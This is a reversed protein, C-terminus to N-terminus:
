STFADKCEFSWEFPIDKKILRHLSAAITAFHPVFRRYYSALGVFSRVNTPDSPRPFNKVKDTKSPDPQIGYKSIIYGLYPVQERLFDCKTPKLHLGAKHLREFVLNLHILHEKFSKSAILIDDIYVFCCKWELGSLVVQMLRQFTASM